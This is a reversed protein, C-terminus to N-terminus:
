YRVRYYFYKLVETPFVSWGGTKWWGVRSYAFPPDYSPVEIRIDTGSFAFRFVWRARRAFFVEVPIILASTGHQNTWNRLAVAEDWTDKSGNGFFEIARDPVKLKRLIKVNREADGTESRVRGDRSVLVKHVLGKAYLDAAVVPRVDYGGGLVVVADAPTIPDSVVWLDAADQLLADRELWAGVALGAVIVAIPVHRWLQGFRRTQGGSALQVNLGSHAPPAYSTQFSVEGSNRYETM